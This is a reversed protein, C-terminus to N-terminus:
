DSPTHISIHDKECVALGGIGIKNENVNHFTLLDYVYLM